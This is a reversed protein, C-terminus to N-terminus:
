QWFQPVAKQKLQGVIKGIPIGQNYPIKWNSYPDRAHHLAVLELKNNFVGSGSSGEQTDTDYRIRVDTPEGVNLVNGFAMAMPQTNPHQIIILTDNTKPNAAHESMNVVGRKVGGATEKSGLPEKLRLLAYDLNDVVPIGSGTTDAIDGPSSAVVWGSGEALAVAEGQELGSVDRAFDFRCRIEAPPRKNAIHQEVVHYNTLVLDDAVLLGTGQGENAPHEIRCVGQSIRSLKEMWPKLDVFGAAKVMKEFTNGTAIAKPSDESMAMRLTSTLNQIILKQPNAKVLSSILKDTWGEAEAVDILEFVEHQFANEEVLNHLPPKNMEERLFRDLSDGNYAELIAIRLIKRQTGSLEAFPM